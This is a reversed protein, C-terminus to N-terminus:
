RSHTRAACGSKWGRSSKESASSAVRSVQSYAGVRRDAAADPEVRRDGGLDRRTRGARSAARPRRRRDDLHVRRVLLPEEPVDEREPIARLHERRVREALLRALDEGPDLPPERSPPSPFFAAAGPPGAPRGSPRERKSLSPRASAARAAGFFAAGAAGRWSIGALPEAADQEEHRVRHAVRAERHPLERAAAAAGLLLQERIEVEEELDARRGERRVVEEIEVDLAVADVDRQVLAERARRAEGLALGGREGRRPLREAALPALARHLREALRDRAIPARAEVLEDAADVRARRGGAVRHEPRSWRAM